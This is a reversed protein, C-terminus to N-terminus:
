RSMEVPVPGWSGSLFGRSRDVTLPSVVVGDDDDREDDVGGVFDDLPKDDGNCADADAAWKAVSDCDDDADSAETAATDNM